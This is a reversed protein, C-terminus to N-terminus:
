FVLIRNIKIALLFEPKGNQFHFGPFDTTSCIQLAKKTIFPHFVSLVYRFSKSVFNYLYESCNSINKAHSDFTKFSSAQIMFPLSWGLRLLQLEYKIMYMYYYIFLFFVTIQFFISYFKTPLLFTCNMTYILTKLVWNLDSFNNFIM